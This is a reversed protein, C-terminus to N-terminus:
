RHAGSGGIPRASETRASAGIAPGGGRAPQDSGAGRTSETAFKVTMPIFPPASGGPSRDPASGSEPKMRRQTMRVLGEEAIVSGSSRRRALISHVTVNPRARIRVTAVAILRNVLQFYGFRDLENPYPLVETTAAAATM